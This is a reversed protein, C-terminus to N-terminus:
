RIPWDGAAVFDPDRTRRMYEQFGEAQERCWATQMSHLRRMSVGLEVPYRRAIAQAVRGAAIADAGADHATELPVGYFAANLELTRKGKRYKDLARDLVLADVILQTGDLPELGLRTAERVLLTLDYPANYIALPFGRAAAGSVLDVVMARNAREVLALLQAPDSTSM